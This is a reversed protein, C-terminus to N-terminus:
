ILRNNHLGIWPECIVLKKAEIVAAPSIYRHFLMNQKWDDLKFTCNGYLMEVTEYRARRLQNFSSITQVFTYMAKSNEDMENNRGVRGTMVSVVAIAMKWGAMLGSGWGGEGGWLLM